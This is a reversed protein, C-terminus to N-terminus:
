YEHRGRITNLTKKGTRLREPIGCTEVIHGRKNLMIM